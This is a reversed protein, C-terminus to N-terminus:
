NRNELSSITEFPGRSANANLPFHLQVLSSITAKQGTTPQKLAIKAQAASWNELDRGPVCGSALYLLYAAKRIEEEAPELVHNANM